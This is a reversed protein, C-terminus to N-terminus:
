QRRAKIAKIVYPFVTRAMIRHGEANPHIADAQNLSAVGAVDELLFPILIIDEEGAVEPYIQAFAGTYEPGLNQIIQMGALVVTVGGARLMRVAESINKRVTSTPIGRLGDNGGTELIVIEPDQALIWKIRRLAGSSTEGSIGANVVQWNYGEGRLQKALLAPWAEEEAVGLGATLSDGLAIITGDYRVAPQNHEKPAASSSPKEEAECGPLLLLPLLFLTTIFLHLPKM